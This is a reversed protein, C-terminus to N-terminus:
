DETHKVETLEDVIGKEGRSPDIHKDDMAEAVTRQNVADPNGGKEKIKKKLSEVLGALEGREGLSGMYFCKM